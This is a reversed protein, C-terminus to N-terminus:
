KRTMPDAIKISGDVIQDRLAKVKAIADPYDVVLCKSSKVDSNLATVSM